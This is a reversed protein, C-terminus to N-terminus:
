ESPIKMSKHVPNIFKAGFDLAGKLVGGFNQVGSLLLSQVIPNESELSNFVRKNLKLMDKQYKLMIENYQAQLKALGYQSFSENTESVAKNTSNESRAQLYGSVSNYYEYQYKNQLKMVDLSYKGFLGLTKQTYPLAETGTIGSGRNTYYDKTQGSLSNLSGVVKNQGELTDRYSLGHRFASAYRKAERKTFGFRELKSFMDSASLLEGNDGYLGLADALGAYSTSLDKGFNLVDKGLNFRALINNVKNTGLSLLGNGLGIITNVATSVNGVLSSIDDMNTRISDPLTMSSETMESASSPNVGNLSPNIGAERMREAQASESNYEEERSLSQLQSIYENSRQAYEERTRDESTRFNFLNGIKDWFGLQYQYNRYPNADYLSRYSDPLGTNKFDDNTNM